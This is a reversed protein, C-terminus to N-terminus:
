AELKVGTDGELDPTVEMIVSVRGVFEGWRFWTQMLDPLNRQNDNIPKKLEKCETNLLLM